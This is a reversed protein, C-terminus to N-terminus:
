KFFNKLKAEFVDKHFDEGYKFAYGSYTRESYNKKFYKKPLKYVHCSVGSSVFVGEKEILDEVKHFFLTM